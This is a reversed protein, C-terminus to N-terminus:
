LLDPVSEIRLAPGIEIIKTSTKEKDDEKQSIRFDRVQDEINNEDIVEINEDDSDISDKKALEQQIDPRSLKRKRHSENIMEQRSLNLNSVSSFFSSKLLSM